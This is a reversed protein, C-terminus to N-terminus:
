YFYVLVEGYVRERVGYEGIAILSKEVKCCFEKCFVSISEQAVSRGNEGSAM